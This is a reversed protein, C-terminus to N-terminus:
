KRMKRPLKKEVSNFPGPEFKISVECSRMGMKQTFYKTQADLNFSPSRCYVQFISHAWGKGGDHKIMLNRRSFLKVGNNRTMVKHMRAACLCSMSAQIVWLIVDGSWLVLKKEFGRIKQCVFVWWDRLCAGVVRWLGRMDGGGGTPLFASMALMGWNKKMRAWVLVGLTRVYWVSVLAVAAAGRCWRVVVAGWCLCFFAWVLIM